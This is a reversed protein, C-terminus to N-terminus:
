AAGGTDSNKIGAAAYMAALARPDGAERLLEGPAERETWEMMARLAGRRIYTCGHWAIREFMLVCFPAWSERPMAVALSEVEGPGGSALHLSDRELLGLPFALLGYLDHLSASDLAERLLSRAAPELDHGGGAVAHPTIGALKGIRHEWTTAVWWPVHEGPYPVHCGLRELAESVSLEAGPAIRKANHNGVPGATLALLLRRSQHSLRGAPTTM